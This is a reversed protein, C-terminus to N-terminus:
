RSSSQFAPKPSSRPGTVPRGNTRGRRRGAPVPVAPRLRASATSLGSSGVRSDGPAAAAPPQAVVALSRRGGELNSGRTSGTVHPVDRAQQTQSQGEIAASTVRGAMLGGAFVCVLSAALAAPAWGRAWTQALAGRREATGRETTLPEAPLRETTMRRANSEAQLRAFLRTEFGVPAEMAPEIRFATLLREVESSAGASSAAAGSGGPSSAAAGAESEERGLGAWPVRM